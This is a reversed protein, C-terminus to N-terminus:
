SCYSFPCSTAQQSLSHGQKSFMFKTFPFLTLYPPWSSPVQCPFPPAPPFASDASSSRRGEHSPLLPQWHSHVATACYVFKIATVLLIHPFNHSVNLGAAVKQLLQRHVIIIYSTIKYGKREIRDLELKM